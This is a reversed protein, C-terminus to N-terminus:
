HAVQAAPVNQGPPVASGMGHSAPLHSSSALAALAQTRKVCHEAPKETLATPVAVLSRVQAAQPVPVNLVVGFALVHGVQAWQAAPVCTCAAPVVVVSRVQTAQSLPWNLAAASAVVQAVHAVQAAPIYTLVALSASLSRTQLGQGASVKLALALESDHAGAPAHAAPVTFVPSAVDVVGTVQAAQV